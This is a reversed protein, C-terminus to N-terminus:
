RPPSPKHASSSSHTKAPHEELKKSPKSFKTAPNNTVSPLTEAQTVIQKNIQLIWKKLLPENAFKYQNYPFYNMASYLNEGSLPQVFFNDGVENESIHAITLAASLLNDLGQYPTVIKPDYM